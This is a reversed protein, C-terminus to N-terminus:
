NLPNYCRFNHTSSQATIPPYSMKCEDTANWCRPHFHCGSPPNMPSPIDGELIIREKEAFPDPNSRQSCHKQIHTVLLVMFNM